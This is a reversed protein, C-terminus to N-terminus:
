ANSQDALTCALYTKALAAIVDFQFQSTLQVLLSMLKSQQEPVHRILLKVAQDDCRLAARYLENYWEQPMTAFNPDTLSPLDALKPATNPLDGESNVYLSYPMTHEIMKQSLRDRLTDPLLANYANACRRAVLIAEVDIGLNMDLNM